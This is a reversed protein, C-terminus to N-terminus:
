RRHLHRAAREGRSALSFRVPSTSRARGGACMSKSTASNKGDLQEALVLATAALAADALETPLKALDREVAAVVSVV